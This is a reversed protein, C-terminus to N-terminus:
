HEMSSTTNLDGYVAQSNLPATSQTSLAPKTKLLLLHPATHRQHSGNKRCDVLYTQGASILKDKCSVLGLSLSILCMPSWNLFWWCYFIIARYTFRENAQMCIIEIRGTVSFRLREMEGNLSSM